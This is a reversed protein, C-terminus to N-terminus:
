LAAEVAARFEALGFSGELRAAIRGRADVTFLWPESSLGFARLAPRFGRDLRNDVYVEQHIFTVRDGYERQLQVALDVVPGCVRSPCLAPSAFLLAVPTRGVVDAFSVAHLDSPPERTDIRTVDGGASALTETAVRPAPEGVAPVPTTPTVRIITPAGILREGQRSVVLLEYTGTGPLRLDTTYIAAFIDASTASATSRYPPDVLLPDLEAPFPGAAPAGANRGVYVATPAFVLANDAGIVGFGLRNVGPTFVSTALAVQSGPDALDAM